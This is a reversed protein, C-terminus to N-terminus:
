GGVTGSAPTASAPANDGDDDNGDDGQDDRGHHGMGPGGFGHDGDPGGAPRTNNVFGTVMETLKAVREDAQAQTIDGATVRENIKATAEKVLADILDQATKGKSVALDALSQGSQLATRVEDATVGLTTAITDLGPMGMGRAGGGMPGGRHGGDPKAAVLAAIVKDAQEQTITGDDVLPKLVDQLRASPDPRAQDDAGDGPVTSDVTASVAAPRGSSAGASGTLELILGAGAGAVLGLALGTGVLKKKM